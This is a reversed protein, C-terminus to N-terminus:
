EHDFVIVPINLAHNPQLQLMNKIDFEKSTPVGVKIDVANLTM